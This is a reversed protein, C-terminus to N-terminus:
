KLLRRFDVPKTERDRLATMKEAVLPHSAINLSMTYRNTLFHLLSPPLHDFSFHHFSAGGIEDRTRVHPNRNRTKVKRARISTFATIMIYNQIKNLKFM